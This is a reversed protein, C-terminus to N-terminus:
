VDAEHLVAGRERMFGVRKAAAAHSFREPLFPLIDALRDELNGRQGIVQLM